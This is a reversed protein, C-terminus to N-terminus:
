RKRVTFIGLAVLTLGGGACLFWSDISHGLMIGLGLMVLCWGHLSSKRCM